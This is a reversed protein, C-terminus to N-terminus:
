LVKENANLYYELKEKNFDEWTLKSNTIKRIQEFRHLNTFLKGIWVLSIALMIGIFVKIYKM